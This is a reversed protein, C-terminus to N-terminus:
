EGSEGPCFPSWCGRVLQRMRRLDAWTRLQYLEEGKPPWLGLQQLSALRGASVLPSSRDADLQLRHELSRYTVLIRRLTRARDESFGLDRLVPEMALLVSGQERAAGGCGLLQGAQVLFELDTVGGYGLKIDATEPGDRGRENEMRRRLHCMRPWVSEGGRSVSCLDRATAELARGLEPDGAVARLRLLAQIEWVDAHHTYYDQWAQRTVALPGYSGSPRLEADVSYGPGEQLPTSLMRMLRQALRVVKQPMAEQEAGGPPQYVFMLDLDSLYGFERSGLKGLALVALPLDEPLGLHVRVWDYTHRIVFDALDTLEECAEEASIRGEQEALALMLLRENRLRRIWEMAEDFVHCGALISEGRRSWGSFPQEVGGASAIGEVLAPQHALLSAVMGSRLTGRMVQELWDPASELMRALGPRSAVQRVFREMRSVQKSFLEEGVGSFSELASAVMRKLPLPFDALAHELSQSYARVDGAGDGIGSAQEGTKRERNGTEQEEDESEQRRKGSGFLATFHEHVRDGCAALEETFTRAGNAFGLATALRERDAESQPVRRTQRNQDLQLWHEVRRLFIYDRQMQLVAEEPMLELKRLKDLCALTNPEDLERYRGGYILQFSQVTFEIERIGGRGLKVDRFLDREERKQEALIRDRMGQLEELAQFDMFRRFVFPAVEQLFARGLGRDGAVPRAKLLAQREWARGSNLYYEAAAEMPPVLEGDKGMPRLRLDTAFVKDGEFQEGVLRCLAQCFRRHGGRGGSHRKFFVLDVDSVYNLENGGLKGLGMVSVPNERLSRAAEEFDEERGCWLGPRELLAEQAVQLAVGALESLQRVTESFDALGLLERGGIRLFHRQKFERLARALDEFKEGQAATDSLDRYLETLPYRRMLNNRSWLWDMHEARNLLRGLYTSARRILRIEAIHDMRGQDM